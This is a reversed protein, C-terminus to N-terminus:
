QLAPPVSTTDSGFLVIGPLALLFPVLFLLVIMVWFARDAKPQCEHCMRGAANDEEPNAVEALHSVCVARKCGKVYCMRFTCAGMAVDNCGEFHCLPIDMLPSFLDNNFGLRLRRNNFPKNM